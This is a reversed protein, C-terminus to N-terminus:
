RLDLLSYPAINVDQLKQEIPLYNEFLGNEFILIIQPKKFATNPCKRLNVLAIKPDM